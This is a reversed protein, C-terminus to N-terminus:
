FLDIVFDTIAYAMIAVVLGVVAYLITNKAGQLQNSDGGSIVYRFGGIVLMIVSVAGLLFLLVNTITGFIPGIDAGQGSQSHVCEDGNWTGGAGICAQEKAAQAAVENVGFVGFMGVVLLTLSIIVPTTKMIVKIM